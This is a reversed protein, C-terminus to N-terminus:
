GNAANKRHMTASAVALINSSLCYAFLRRFLIIRDDLVGLCLKDEHTM